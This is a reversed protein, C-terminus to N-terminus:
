KSYSYAPFVLNDQTVVDGGLLQSWSVACSLAPPVSLTKQQLAAHSREQCPPFCSCTPPLM